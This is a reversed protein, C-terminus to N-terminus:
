SAFFSLEHSHSLYFRELEAAQATIDYEDAPLAGTGRQLGTLLRAWQGADGLPLRLSNPSLLVEATVRDSLVCPLGNAQAEVAVVPVGEYFSPLCFVDMASYLMAADPRAGTFCVRDGLGMEEAQARVQEMREGDGVLLLWADQRLAATQQFVRLLFGHNKPYVFRGVHGVVFAAEPIALEGRLRSRAAPNYAFRGVDIANPMVYVKGDEFSRRGYMWRGAKEGCAFYETAFLKNFPRLLYKLLTKKGEGWHATSHNHCIRVPVGARWAAFLAFVSMTSLHVHVVAYGAAKFARYLARHYALPRSYAPIPYLGAGLRELEERQPLASGEFFYFDFQVKERDIHRYYNMVVAEIGGSEMRNLVQAVRMPGEM